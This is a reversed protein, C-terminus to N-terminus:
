NGTYASGFLNTISVVQLEMRYASIALRGHPRHTFAAIFVTFKNGLWDDLVFTAGRTRYYGDLIKVVTDDMPQDFSGELTLRRDAAFVGFDQITAAGQLGPHVSHRKPWQYPEYPEPDTTFTTEGGTPGITLRGFAPITAPV